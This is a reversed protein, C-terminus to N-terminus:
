CRSSASCRAASRGAAPLRQLDDPASLLARFVGGGADRRHQRLRLHRRDPRDARDDRGFGSLPIGAGDPVVSPDLTAGGALVHGRQRHGAGTRGVYLRRARSRLRLVRGALPASFAASIAGAAGCAVLLRMDNRRAALRQGIHSSFAACIQTYGAELGVSGGFGNSLLTQISILLSGRFSVRGGYLANAEIADALQQGKLRGAFFMGIAALVVGGLIPILLTRQWSIVGTASLHADFPIDFLLAHAVESLKSIAAVLLGVLLGIVIAVLLSAPKATASSIACPRRCCIAPPLARKRPATPVPLSADNRETGGRRRHPRRPIRYQERFQGAHELQAGRRSLSQLLIRPLSVLRRAALSQRRARGAASRRGRHHPSLRPSFYDECWEWVNGAMNHLGYGNPKFAHVPATGAYGDEATNHDPFSGQWINCRHEGAPTLEDGWPYIAQELGGRAAMEWEAETPLRTGRGNAIPRPMTGPSMCSPIISGTSSRAPRAKRSRGIPMRCRFGGHRTPPGAASRANPKKPCFAQSFLAGAM